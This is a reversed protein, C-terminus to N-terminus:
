CRFMPIEGAQHPYKEVLSQVLQHFPTAKTRVFGNLIVINYIYIAFFDIMSINYIYISPKIM